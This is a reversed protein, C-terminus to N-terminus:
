AIEDGSLYFVAVRRGLDELDADRLTDETDVAILEGPPMGARGRFRRLLPTDIVVRLGSVLANGDGDALDMVWQALRDNWRFSFRYTVGDLETGFGFFPGEQVIPLQVIM